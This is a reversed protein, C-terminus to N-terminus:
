STRSRRRPCIGAAVRLMARRRFRRLGDPLGLGEVDRELEDELTSRTRAGVDVLSAIETPHAVLFDAAATSFGLLLVAAALVDGRDLVERAPGNRRVRSIAVRALEPNPAKALLGELVAEYPTAVRLLYPLFALPDSTM